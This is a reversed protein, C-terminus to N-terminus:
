EPESSSSPVRDPAGAPLDTGPGLVWMLISGAMAANLSDVGPALPLSVLLAAAKRVQPRPGAGENGVALAFGGHASRPLRGARVDRGEADAVLMPLGARALWELGEEAKVRHVPMRFVLGTSARVAKANWPDVTGDLAMVRSLGFAVASRILTGVNGPDQVADLVLVREVPADPSPEGALAETPLEEAPEEAVGLVGQPTDTDAFDALVEDPLEVIEVGAGALAETLEGVGPGRLDRELLVFRFHAGAALATRVARPGEVLM